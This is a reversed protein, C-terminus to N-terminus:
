PRQCDLAVELRTKRRAATLCRRIAHEAAAPRRARCAAVRRSATSCVRPHSNEPWSGDLVTSARSKRCPATSCGNYRHEVVPRQRTGPELPKEPAGGDREGRSMSQPTAGDLLALAPTKQRPVTYCVEMDGKGASQLPTCPVLACQKHNARLRRTCAVYGTHLAESVPGVTTWPLVHPPAAPLVIHACRCSIDVDQVSPVIPYQTRQIRLARHTRNTGGSAPRGLPDDLRAKGMRLVM